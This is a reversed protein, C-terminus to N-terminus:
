GSNCFRDSSGIPPRVKAVLGTRSYGVGDSEMKQLSIPDDFTRRTYTEQKNLARRFARADAAAQRNSSSADQQAVEEISSEADAISIGYLMHGAQESFITIMQQPIGLVGM